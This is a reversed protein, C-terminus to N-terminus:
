LKKKSERILRKSKCRLQLYRLWDAINEASNLNNRVKKKAELCEVIEKNWWKPKNNINPAKTEDTHM